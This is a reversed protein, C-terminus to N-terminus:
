DAPGRELENPPFRLFLHEPAFRNGDAFPHAKEGRLQLLRGGKPL